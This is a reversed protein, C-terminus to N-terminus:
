RLPFQLGSLFIKSHNKDFSRIFFTATVKLNCDFDFEKNFFQSFLLFNDFSISYNKDVNIKSVNLDKIQPLICFIFVDLFRYINENSIVSRCGLITGKRLRSGSIASASRFIIPKQNSILKLISLGYIVHYPSTTSPPFDISLVIKHIHPIQHLNRIKFKYVLDYFLINHIWCRSYSM